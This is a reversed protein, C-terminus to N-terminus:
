HSLRSLLATAAQRQPEYEAGKPLKALLMRFQAAASANDGAMQLAIGRNLQAEYFDPALRLAQDFYGVADRPQDNQVRLVGLGNLPDPYKPALSAAKEYASAADAGRNMSRYVNGLNNWARANRSDIDIAKRFEAEAEGFKGQETLEIGLANHAEPRSPDRRLAERIVVSAEKARGAAQLAVALEYWADNDDPAIAVAQRYLELARDARGAQKYARALLGRFVSNRPDDRVLQELAPLADATRKENVAWVSEEFKRFLPAMDRPDRAPGNASAGTPAIYGLSALKSKTEDDVPANKAPQATVKAADLLANLDHYARRDVDFINKSERPDNRLDFLEARTGRILKTSGRRMATLDSWGFTTPYETEAYLDAAKVDGALSVGDINTMSAGALSAVTPAFDISGVPETVRRAKVNPGRFFMPVHLTPEYLLLGHTLEGHEGLAEGHDGIIAVVTTKPDIAALLRGVQADLYAIEGDYTQPYPQPPAYPAHADYLHVWAFFPRVDSQHLWALAHDVTEGGRREAEFNNSMEDASREISDDYTEFGRSLGFRRDLVFSSVFAGTRWGNKSFTTALTERDNPFSGAGNNRVGHHTPLLGSLITCHSPLTLPVATEANDFRASEDALKALNPTNAGLRDARFTDLTIVLVSFQQPATERHCSFLLFCFAFLLFSRRVSKQKRSEAKQKESRFTEM